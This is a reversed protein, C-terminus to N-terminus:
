EVKSPWVTVLGEPKTSMKEFLGPGEHMKRTM